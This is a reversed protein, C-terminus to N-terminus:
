RFINYVLSVGIKTPGVYGKTKKSELKFDAFEGGLQYKDYQMNAYGIGINADIRFRSSLYFKYGGTLGASIGWGKRRYSTKEPDSDKLGINFNGMMGYPGVYFGDWLDNTYYYKPNVYYRFDISGILARFVEEDKKFLYPLWMAEVNLTLQRGVSWEIGFNPSGVLTFPVNTKLAQGKLQLSFGLFFVVVAIAPICKNTPRKSDIILNRVKESIRCACSHLVTVFKYQM